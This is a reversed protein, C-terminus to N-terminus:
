QKTSKVVDFFEKISVPIGKETFGELCIEYTGINDSTYFIISKHNELNLIPEWLLQSRYDPVLDYKPSEDYVQNFYKKVPFPKVLTVNRIFDGSINQQYNGEFTQISIIGKFIKGGYVYQEGIVSIKKVNIPNYLVLENHDQILIGDVIVLPLENSTGEGEIYIRVHLSYLGKLKKTYVSPIIEIMTERISPFRSYDDLLYEEAKSEYFPMPLQVEIMSDLKISSYANEIQNYVSHSILADQCENTITFKNFILDDYNNKINKFIEIKFNEKNKDIVQFIAISNEINKDLNFYFIGAQNTNSVKFLFNRGPVSLGVKINSAPMNSSKSVVKGSLIEGRVEPLQISDDMMFSNTKFENPEKKSFMLATIREPISMEEVKRVSLSYNGFFNSSISPEVKIMVKQRTQYEM